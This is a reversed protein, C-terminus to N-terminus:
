HPGTKFPIALGPNSFGGLRVECFCNACDLLALSNTGGGGSGPSRGGTRSHKRRNQHCLGTAVGYLTAKSGSM